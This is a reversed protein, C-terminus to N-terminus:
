DTIVNGDDDKVVNGDDDLINHTGTSWVGQYFQSAMDYLSGTLGTQDRLFQCAMDGPTGAYGLSSLYEIMHDVTSGDALGSLSQWFEHEDRYGSRTVWDYFDSTDLVTLRKTGM